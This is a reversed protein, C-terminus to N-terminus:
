KIGEMEFFGLKLYEEYEPYKMLNHMFFFANPLKTISYEKALKDFTWGNYEFEPVKRTIIYKDFATRLDPSFELVTNVFYDISSKAYDCSLLFERIQDESLTLCLNRDDIYEVCFIKRSDGWYEAIYPHNENVSDFELGVSRCAEVAEDLFKNDPKNQRCTILIIYWGQQKRKKVHNIIRWNPQTYNHPFSNLFLTNDFDVGCIKFQM